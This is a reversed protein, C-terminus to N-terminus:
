EARCRKLRNWFYDGYSRAVYIQFVNHASHILIGALEFVETTVASRPKFESLNISVIQKLLQCADPGDISYAVYMDSVNVCSLKRGKCLNLLKESLAHEQELESRVFERRPGLRICQISEFKKLQHFIQPTSDGLQFAMQELDTAAGRIDFLARMALRNIHADYLM